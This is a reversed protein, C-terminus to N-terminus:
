PLLDAVAISGAEDGDLSVPITDGVTFVHRLAYDPQEAPGGPQSFVEVQQDTLNVIWYVPIQAAAYIRKKWGRDRNLSADAVEVLLGVDTPSPHREAYDRRHGRVVTIDPEPESDETTIPGEVRIHWNSGVLPGLSDFTCGVSLTHPPDKTMKTVLWGELLEIPAGDILIGTRNMEHYWEVTLPMVPEPPVAFRESVSPRSTAISM